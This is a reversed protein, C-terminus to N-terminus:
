VYVLREWGAGRRQWVLFFVLWFSYPNCYSRYYCSFYNKNEGRIDVEWELRRNPM